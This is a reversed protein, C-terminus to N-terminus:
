QRFIYMMKSDIVIGFQSIFPNLGILHYKKDFETTIAVDLQYEIKKNTLDYKFFIKHKYAKIDENNATKFPVIDDNEIKNIGIQKAFDKGFLSISAGSDFKVPIPIWNNNNKSKVYITFTIRYNNIKQSFLIRNKLLNINFDVLQIEKM